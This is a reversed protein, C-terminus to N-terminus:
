IKEWRTWFNYNYVHPYKTYGDTDFVTKINIGLELLIKEIIYSLSKCIIINDNLGEDWAKKTGSKKYIKEKNKSNGFSFNLDFSLRKGLDLYVYRIKEIETLNKTNNKAKEIYEELASM